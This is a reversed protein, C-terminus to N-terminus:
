RDEGFHPGPAIMAFPAGKQVWSIAEALQAVYVAFNQARQERARM